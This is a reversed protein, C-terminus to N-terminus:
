LYAVPQSQVKSCGEAQWLLQVYGQGHLWQSSTMQQVDWSSVDRSPQLKHCNHRHQKGTHATVRNHQVAGVVRGVLGAGTASSSSGIGSSSVVASGVVVGVVVGAVVAVVVGIRVPGVVVAVVGMVVVEVGMVVGVVVVGAVVVVVGAVVLGAVALSKVVTGAVVVVRGVGVVAVVAVGVAAAASGSGSPSGSSPSGVLLVGATSGVGGAVEVVVRGVVVVVGDIPAPLPAVVLELLLATGTVV